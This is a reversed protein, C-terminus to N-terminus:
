KKLEVCGIKCHVIRFFIKRGVQIELQLHHWRNRRRYELLLRSRDFMDRSRHASTGGGDCLSVMLLCRIGVSQHRRWGCKLRLVKRRGRSRMGAILRWYGLCLRRNVILRLSVRSHLVHSRLWYVVIGVGV